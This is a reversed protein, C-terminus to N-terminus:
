GGLEWGERAAAARTTAAGSFQREGELKSKVVSPSYPPPLPATEDRADHLPPPSESSRFSVAAAMSTVATAYYMKRGCLLHNLRHSDVYVM